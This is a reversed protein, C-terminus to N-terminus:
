QVKQLKAEFKGINSIKRIILPYREDNNSLLITINVAPNEVELYSPFIGCELQLKRNVERVSYTIDKVKGNSYFYLKHQGPNLEAKRFFFQLSLADHLIGPLKIETREEPKGTESNVRFAVKRRYDFSVEDVESKKNDRIERRFYVPYMGEADLLAEEIETYGTLQNALGVTTVNSRVRIVERNKYNEFGIVKVTQNGGHIVSKVMVKYELVEGPKVNDANVNGFGALLLVLGVISLSIKRFM